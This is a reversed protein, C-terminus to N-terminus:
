ERKRISGVFFVLSAVLFVINVTRAFPPAGEPWLQGLLVVLNLLILVALIGRNRMIDHPYMVSPTRPGNNTEQQSSRAPTNRDSGNM